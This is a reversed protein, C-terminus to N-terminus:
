VIFYKIILDRTVWTHDMGQPNPFRKRVDVLVCNPMLERVDDDSLGAATKMNQYVTTDGFSIDKLFKWYRRYDKHRLSHNRIDPPISGRREMHNFTVCTGASLTFMKRLLM